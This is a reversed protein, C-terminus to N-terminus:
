KKRKKSTPAILGAKVKLAQIAASIAQRSVKLEKAMQTVSEGKKLRFILKKQTKTLKKHRANIGEEIQLALACRETEKNSKKEQKNKCQKCLPPRSIGRGCRECSYIHLNNSMILNNPAVNLHNGDKFLVYRFKKFDQLWAEAVLRHAKYFKGKWYISAQKTNNKSLTTVLIKKYYWYKKVIFVFKGEATVYLGPCTIVPKINIPTTKSYLTTKELVQDKSMNKYNEVIEVTRGITKAISKDDKTRKLEQVNEWEELLYM